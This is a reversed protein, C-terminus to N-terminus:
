SLKFRNEHREKEVERIINYGEITEEIDMEREEPEEAIEGDQSGGTIIKRRNGRLKKQYELQLEMKKLRKKENRLALDKVYDMEIPSFKKLERGADLQMKGQPLAKDNDKSIKKGIIHKKINAFVKKDFVSDGRIIIEDTIIKRVIDDDVEFGSEIM